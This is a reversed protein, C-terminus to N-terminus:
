FVQLGFLAGVSVLEPMDPTIPLTEIVEITLEDDDFM